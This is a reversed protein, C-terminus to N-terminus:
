NKFMFKMTVNLVETGVDCFIRRTESIFVLMYGGSCVIEIM